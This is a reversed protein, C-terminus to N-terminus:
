VDTKIEKIQAGFTQLVHKTIPHARAEAERKTREASTRERSTERISRAASTNSEGADLLRVTVRLNALAPGLTGLISRLEETKDKAMEGMAHVDVPFGLELVEQTWKMVRALEFLSRLAPKRLAELEDLVDDWARLADAANAPIAVRRVVRAAHDHPGSGAAVAELKPVPGSPHMSIPASREGTIAAVPEPADSMGAPGGSARQYPAVGSSRRSGVPALPEGPPAPVPAEGRSAGAAGDGVDDYLHRSGSVAVSSAEEGRSAEVGADALSGPLRSRESMTGAMEYAHRSAASGASSAEGARSPGAVGGGAAAPSAPVALREPMTEAVEHVGRTGAAAAGPANGRRSMEDAGDGADALLASPRSRESMTAVTEYPRSGSAAASSAQGGPSAGSAGPGTRYGPSRPSNAPTQGTAPVPGPRPRDKSSGEAGGGRGSRSPGRALRGELETLRDILDGLPVLPEITAVDILACDLVLRPQLTKGLEDCCRLMREFMQTTRSRPLEAAEARLEALEEETADILGRRGPAVQLVSLDRLYRVIARALQVEDVGREIASEVSSLAAGADGTALARVLTRTLARDAVGLVEAVHRETMVASAEGVYSILQDCLSLADRVSGGSERVVLSIAGPEISLREKAFITSLHHALRAAPVLKFDYRQCRSLITNPLKHPETTALVFTVHPPPEELTKLLANFAETTLMHVEDIVYVKKRLVAPQYRVAETLERIADIGRNSAGDMEQYDVASGNSISTCAACVGCPESPGGGRLVADDAITGGGGADPIEARCAECNLAKGVIRALTTKGCGRPGCFLFAHHIRGTAFANGLTRTVHDQGVVEAFTSPRYKRALVLYSM